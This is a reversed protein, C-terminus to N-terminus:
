RIVMNIRDSNLDFGAILHGRTRGKSFCKIYLKIPISLHLYIKGDRFVIRAGHSIRKQRALEILEEILPLYDKGFLAKFSIWSGDYPYKVKVFDMSVLRMNRNGFRM